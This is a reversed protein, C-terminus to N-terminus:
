SIETLSALESWDAETLEPIDGRKRITIDGFPQAQAVDVVRRKILELVALLTVIVVTRNGPKDVLQNFSIAPQDALRRRILDMQEGITVRVPTVVEDVDPEQPKIALARYAAELLEELSGSGAELRTELKPPPAVRVFSRRGTEEISKLEAGVEKFRKYARLQRALEDGVDEEEEEAAIITPPKPLLAKSKILILKAAIVLFGVLMDPELAKVLAIYALYQDTVKALAVKTIDLEEGEILTLLLDLPGRFDPLEVEYPTPPQTSSLNSDIM